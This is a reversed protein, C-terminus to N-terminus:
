LGIRLESRFISTTPSIFILKNCAVECAIHYMSVIYWFPYVINFWNFVWDAVLVHLRFWPFQVCSELVIVSWTIDFQWEAVYGVGSMSHYQQNEIIGLFQCNNEIIIWILILEFHNISSFEFHTKAFIIQLLMSETSLKHLTQSQVTYLDFCFIAFFSDFYGACAM